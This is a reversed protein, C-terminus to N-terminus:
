EVRVFPRLSRTALTIAADIAALTSTHDAIGQGSIDFATGHDVSTRIMPIGLTASVSEHLNNVKIAIHGQDHYMALVVDFEGDIARCFISDAPFPGKVDIGSSACEQVAPQIQEIEENGLLGGEGGHPNVASVGIRPESIGWERFSKDVLRIREAVVKQVIFKVANALSKHTSLHVVRLQPTMLMTAPSTAQTLRGLIEQHGIDACGAAHIAEKNLPLTVLAELDGQLVDMTAREVSKVAIDGCIASVEGFQFHTPKIPHVDIIEPLQAPELHINAVSAGDILSWRTGYIVPVCRQAMGSLAKALIESGIGAPDGM